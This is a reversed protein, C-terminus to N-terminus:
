KELVTITPHSNTNSIFALKSGSIMIATTGTGVDGVGSATLSYTLSLSENQPLAAPIGLDVTGSANGKGDANLIGSQLTVTSDTSNEIGLTYRGSFLADSFPPAAQPELIGFTGDPDTGLFFGRNKGSLYLVPPTSGGTLTVRGNPAVTYNFQTSSSAFTGASNLNDKSTMAGLGDATVTAIDVVPGSTSQATTRLVSTGTLSAQTFDTGTPVAIAEGVGQFIDSNNDDAILFADGTNIMYFGIDPAKGISLNLSGRGNADCCTFAGAPSASLNNTIKGNDNIDLDASSIASVGDATITGVMALRICCPQLDIGNFGLVYSGNLHSTTFSTPDQSRLKGAGGSVPVTNGYQSLFFYGPLAILHGGTSVGTADVDGLSFLFAQTIGSTQALVACGRHDPGVSYSSVAPDLTVTTPGFLDEEASTVKGTGDATFSGTASNLLFAYQGKLLSENGSGAICAVTGNPNTITLTTGSSKTPDEVSTAVARVLPSVPANAPATYTATVGSSTAVRSMSGCAPSCAVGDQTLSWKVGSNTGDNSVTATLQKTGNLAVAATVPSASVSVQPLNLGASSSSATYTVSTAVAGVQAVCFGCFWYGAKSPPVLHAPATYTIATGSGTNAPSVTGCGSCPLIIVTPENHPQCEGGLSPTVGNCILGAFMAWTVGANDPDNGVTATFQQTGGASVTALGPLVSVTTPAPVTIAVSAAKTPDAVAAATLTVM